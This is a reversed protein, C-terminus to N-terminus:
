TQMFQDNTYTTRAAGYKDLGTLHADTGTMWHKPRQGEALQREAKM